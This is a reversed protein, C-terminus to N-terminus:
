GNPVGITVTRINLLCKQGTTCDNGWFQCSARMCGSEGHSIVVPTVKPLEETNQLEFDIRKLALALLARIERLESQNM